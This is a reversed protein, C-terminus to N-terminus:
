SSVTAVRCSLAGEHLITLFLAASKLRTPVAQFIARTVSSRGSDGSLFDNVFNMVHQEYIMIQSFLVYCCLQADGLFKNMCNDVVIKFHFFTEARYTEFSRPASCFRNRYLIHFFLRIIKSASGSLNIWRNM